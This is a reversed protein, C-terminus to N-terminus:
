AGRRTNPNSMGVSLGSQITARTKEVGDRRSLAAAAAELSSEVEYRTIKGDAVLTGLKLAATYLTKNVTGEPAFWIAKCEGGLAARGYALEDRASASIGPKRPMLEKPVGDGRSMVWERLREMNRFRRPEVPRLVTYPDGCPHPSPPAVVYARNARLEVGGRYANFPIHASYFYYHRGRGSGSRITLTEAHTGFEAEFEHCADLSDVDLLVLGGSVAGAILGIGRMLGRQLWVDVLAHTPQNHIWHQWRFNKAPQKGHLPIISCGAEIFGHAADAITPATVADLITSMKAIRVDAATVIVHTVRFEAAHAANLTALYMAVIAYSRRAAAFRVFIITM